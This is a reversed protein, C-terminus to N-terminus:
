SPFRLTVNHTKQQIKLPSIEHKWQQLASHYLFKQSIDLSDRKIYCNKLSSWSDVTLMTETILKTEKQNPKIHNSKRQEKWHFNRNYSLPTAVQKRRTLNGLQENNENGHRKFFNDFCYRHSINRSNRPFYWWGDIDFQEDILNGSKWVWVM